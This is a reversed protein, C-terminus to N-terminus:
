GVIPLDDDNKSSHKSRNRYVEIDIAVQHLRTKLRRDAYTQRVQPGGKGAGVHSQRPASNLAPAHLACNRTAGPADAM